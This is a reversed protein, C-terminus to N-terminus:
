VGLELVAELADKSKVTVLGLIPPWVGDLRVILLPCWNEVTNSPVEYVNM